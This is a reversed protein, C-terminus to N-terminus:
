SAKDKSTLPFFSVNLQFVDDKNPNKSMEKLFQRRFKKIMEKAKPLDEKSIPLTMGSHDRLNKGLHELAYLSQQHQQVMNRKAAESTKEPVVNSIVGKVIKRWEKTKKDIEILGMRELTSMAEKVVNTKLGLKKAVWSRSHEFDSLLPLQMITGFYWESVLKFKDLELQSYEIVESTKFKEFKLFSEVEELGLGLKVGIHEIMEPTVKRKGKIYLSLIGPSIELMKAMGRLSYRHNVEKRKELEDFIFDKFRLKMM